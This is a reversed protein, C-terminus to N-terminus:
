VSIARLYYYIGSADGPQDTYDLGMSIEVDDGSANAPIEASAISTGPDTATGRWWELTGAGATDIVLLSVSASLMVKDGAFAVSIGAITAITTMVHIDTDAAAPVAPYLNPRGGVYVTAAGGQVTATSTM